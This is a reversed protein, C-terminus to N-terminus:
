DRTTSASGPDANFATLADLLAQGNPSGLGTRPDWGAGGTYVGTNGNTLDHFGPSGIQYFAQHPDGLRNGLLQNLRAVLAAWLPAVASTGGLVEDVPWM